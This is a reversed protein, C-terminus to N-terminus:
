KEHSRQNPTEIKIKTQEHLSAPRLNLPPPKMNQTDFIKSEERSPLLVANSENNVPRITLTSRTATTNIGLNNRHAPDPRVVSGGRPQDPQPKNISAFSGLGQRRNLQYM